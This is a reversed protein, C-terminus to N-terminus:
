LVVFVILLIADFIFIGIGVRKIGSMDEWAPYQDEAKKYLIHWLEEAKGIILGAFAALIAVIFAQPISIYPEQGYVMSKMVDQSFVAFPQNTKLSEDIDETYQWEIVANDKNTGKIFYTYEYPETYYEQLDEDFEGRIFIKLCLNDATHILQGTMVKDDKFYFEYKKVNDQSGKMVYRVDDVVDSYNNAKTRGLFTLLGLVLLCCLIILINRGKNM